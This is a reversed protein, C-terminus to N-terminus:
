LSRAYANRDPAWEHREVTFTRRDPDIELLNWGAGHAFLDTASGACVHPVRASRVQYARHIHGHLVAGVRAEPDDALALLRDGDRIGHSPRDPVGHRTLLAYHLALITFDHALAPDTLIEKAKALQADGARGSSDFLGTPRAVDLAVLSVGPAIRKHFPFAGGPASVGGFWREFADGTDRTYRDHNGPLMTLRDPADLRPGFLAACRRFEEEFSLQTVDGTCLVHDPRAADVDALLRSIRDEVGAFHRRRGGVWYNLSGAIRKGLLAAPGETLPGLTVHIDSYHALRM